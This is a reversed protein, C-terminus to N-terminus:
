AAEDLQRLRILAAILRSAAATTLQAVELAEAWSVYTLPVGAAALAADMDGAFPSATLDLILRLIYRIQSLSAGTPTPDRM